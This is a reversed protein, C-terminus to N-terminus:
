ISLMLNGEFVKNKIRGIEFEFMKRVKIDRARADGFVGKPVASASEALIVGFTGLREDIRGRRKPLRIVSAGLRALLSSWDQAYDASKAAVLVGLGRLLGTLRRGGSSPEVLSGSTDDRGM